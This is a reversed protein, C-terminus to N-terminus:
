NPVDLERGNRRPLNGRGVFPFNLNLFVAERDNRRPLNGRGVIFVVMQTILVRLGKINRM